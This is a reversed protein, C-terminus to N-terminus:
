FKLGTERAAEALAKVRGHFKYGRRDFAVQTIGKLRARQALATGVATAAAKNGGYGISDRLERDRSSAHCLTCGAVDDILQAYVNKLSRSVALRPREPTGFVKSRVRRVRRQRRKFKRRTRDM